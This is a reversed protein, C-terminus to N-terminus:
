GSGPFLSQRFTDPLEANVSEVQEVRVPKSSSTSLPPLKGGGAAGQVSWSVSWDITTVVDYADDDPNGDPSPQGESSALYTYDCSTSQENAPLQPNYPTGPGDCITVGGDGMAWTVSTPTAVATASVAGVSATVSFPHWIGGDIWLWTPLNVVSLASPNFQLSPPPLRLSREAQRAVSYPDIAPTEAAAADPIWETETTSAGTSQNTCTVSYWSGPTPGGPAFGGEDNLTLM